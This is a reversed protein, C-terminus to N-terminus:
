SSMNFPELANSFDISAIVIKGRYLFTCVKVHMLIEGAPVTILDNFIGRWARRHDSTPCPQSVIRTGLPFVPEPTKIIYTVQCWTM